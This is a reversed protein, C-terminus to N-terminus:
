WKCIVGKRQPKGARENVRPTLKTWSAKGCEFLKFYIPANLVSIDIASPKEDSKENM